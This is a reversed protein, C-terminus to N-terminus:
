NGLRWLREAPGAGAGVQEAYTRVHQPYSTTDSFVGTLQSVYCGVATIRAALDNEVLRYVEGVWAPGPLESLAVALSGPVEAYPLEEYFLIAYGREHLRLAAGRVLQHDVHSGVALPAYVVSRRKAGLRKQLDRALRAVLPEEAPHLPAFLTANSTYFWQRRRNGQGRYIADPWDLYEGRAGLAAMACADEELRLRHAAVMDQPRGWRLHHDRAFPSLNDDPAMGCMITLVCVEEAGEALQRVRGGCSLAVDDLHPSLFLHM